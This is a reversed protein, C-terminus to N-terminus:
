PDFVAHRLPRWLVCAIRGANRNKLDAGGPAGRSCRSPRGANGCNQIQSECGQGSAGGRAPWSCGRRMWDILLVGAFDLERPQRCLKSPTGSRGTLAGFFNMLPPTAELERVEDLGPYTEDAFVNCRRNQRRLSGRVALLPRSRSPERAKEFQEPKVVVSTM